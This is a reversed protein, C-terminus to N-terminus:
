SCFKKSQPFILAKVTYKKTRNLVLFMIKLTKTSIYKIPLPPSNTFLQDYNDNERQLLPIVAPTRFHSVLFSARTVM